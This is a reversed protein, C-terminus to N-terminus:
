GRKGRLVELLMEINEPDWNKGFRVKIGKESKTIYIKSNMDSGMCICGSYAMSKFIEQGCDPCSVNESKSLSVSFENKHLKRKREELFENLALKKKLKKNETKLEQKREQLKQIERSDQRKEKHLEESLKSLIVKQIAERESLKKDVVRGILDHLALREDILRQIEASNDDKHGAHQDELNSVDYLELASMLVLGVGPISRHMFEAIKKNGQEVQGSYVDREMKTVRCMAPSESVPIDLEKTEGIEMSTLNHILFSMLTRPVIKLATKIEEHDVVTRTGIKYLEFKELSQLFDEGLTKKLFFDAGSSM